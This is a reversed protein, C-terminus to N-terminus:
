KSVVQNPPNQSSAKYNDRSVVVGALLKSLVSSTSGTVRFAQHFRLTSGQLLWGPIWAVCDSLKMCVERIATVEQVMNRMCTVAPGRMPVLGNKRSSSLAIHERSKTVICASHRRLPEAPHWAAKLSKAVSHQEGQWRAKKAAAAHWQLLM